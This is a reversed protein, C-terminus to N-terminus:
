GKAGKGAIKPRMKRLILFIGVALLIYAAATIFYVKSAAENFERAVPTVLEAMVTNNPAAQPLVEIVQGLAFPVLGVFIGAALFIKWLKKLGDKKTACVYIIGAAMLLCLAALIYPAKLSLQYNKPISSSDDFVPKGSEDKVSFPTIKTDKLLDDSQGAESLIQKKLANIDTGPPLCPVTYPDIRKIKSLQAATCIPLAKLRKGAQVSLSEAFRDKAGKLEIVFEPQDISGELWGYAGDIASEVNKQVFGPSFADLAARRVMPNKLPVTDAGASDSNVSDDYIVPTIKQYVGSDRLIQKVKAPQATVQSFVLFYALSFLLFFLGTALFYVTIKRFFM